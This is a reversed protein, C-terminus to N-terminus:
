GSMSVYWNNQIDHELRQVTVDRFGADGLMQVALEEGWVSGLGMGNQALSVTMCHMTSIMYLFPCLAHDINNALKSSAQLDQMLFTGGPRLADQVVELVAAPDRQDHIVDFATILDYGDSGMRESVDAVEFTINTLGEADAQRRAALIPKECLDRGVFRSNPFRKALAIMAHGSGCGIDMVDIGEELREALGDVMPLIKTFLGEVVNGDSDEAMVEHFRTFREYPVGGGERFCDVISTEVEAMVALFQFTRAFNNSGASRTLLAAHHPPLFYTTAESDFAVVGGTVMAGLWERVYRENCASAAAIEESSAWCNMAAMSDFLGTRHGIALGLGLTARNLTDLLEAAFQETATDQDAVNVKCANCM